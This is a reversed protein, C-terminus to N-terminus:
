SLRKEFEGLVDTRPNSFVFADPDIQEAEKELLGLEYESLVAVIVRREEGSWAGEAKLITAGRDLSRMIYRVFDDTRDSIIHVTVLNNQRHYRDIVISAFIEAILSYVAIQFSNRAAAVAYVILNVAINVRGVSLKRYKRTLMLGLLDTGGSTGFGRFTLSSGLGELAGGCVALAFVDDIVRHDPVPIISMFVTEVAVIMFTFSISRLGLIRMGALFLPVDLLFYIVPQLNVSSHFVQELADAALQSIGVFGSSYLQAPVIFVNLAACYLFSGALFLLINKLSYHKM